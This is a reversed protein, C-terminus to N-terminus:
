PRVSIDPLRSSRFNTVYQPLQTLLRAYAIIVNGEETVIQCSVNLILTDAGVAPFKILCGGTPCGIATAFQQYSVQYPNDARAASACLLTAVLIPWYFRRM